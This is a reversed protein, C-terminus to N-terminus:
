RLPPQSSESETGHLISRFFAIRAELTQRSKELADQSVMKTEATDKLENVAVLLGNLFDDADTQEITSNAVRNACKELEHQQAKLKRASPSRRLNFQNYKAEMAKCSGLEQLYADVVKAFGEAQKRYISSYRAAEDVIRAIDRMEQKIEKLEVTLKDIKSSATASDLIGGETYAYSVSSLLIYLCIFALYFIRRIVIITM